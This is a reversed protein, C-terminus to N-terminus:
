GIPTPEGPTGDDSGTGDDPTPEDTPEDPNPDAPTGKLAAAVLRSKLDRLDAVAQVVNPDDTQNEIRDLLGDIATEVATTADKIETVESLLDESAGMLKERTIIDNLTNLNVAREIETLRRGIHRQSHEIRVLAEVVEAHRRRFLPRRRRGDHTPEFKTM